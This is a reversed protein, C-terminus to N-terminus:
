YICPMKQEELSNFLYFAYNPHQITTRGKKKIFNTEFLCANQHYKKELRYFLASLVM